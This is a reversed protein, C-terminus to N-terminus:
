GVDHRPSLDNVVVTGALWDHLTRRRPNFLAVLLILSGTLALSGYFAVTLIMAQFLAPRGGGSMDDAALSMVRLGMVRMGFTSARPSAILLIHYALPLLALALAQVPALFGFSLATLLMGAFWVPVALAAVVLIDIAYALIRRLTVGAFYEPHTWADAWEPQDPAIVVVPSPPM